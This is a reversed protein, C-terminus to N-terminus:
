TGVGEMIKLSKLVAATQSLQPNKIDDFAASGTGMLLTVALLGGVFRKKM